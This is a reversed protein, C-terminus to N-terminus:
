GAAACNTLALAKDKLHRGLSQMPASSWAANAPSTSPLKMAALGAAPQCLKTYWKHAAAGTCFVARIGTKKVLGAIDNGVPNRIAADSAGRIECSALADWLAIGHHLAMARKQETTEPVPEGLVAALVPWFRNQPHGYFFQAQRSAPSPMSGLILVKARTDYLPGFNHYVQEYEM